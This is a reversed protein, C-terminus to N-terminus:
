GVSTSRVSEVTRRGYALAGSADEVPEQPPIVTLGARRAADTFTGVVAAVKGRLVDGASELYREMEKTAHRPAALILVNAWQADVERPSIYDKKMRELNESWVADARIVEPDALDPLRRLRVSGRMQIAGVGGALALQETVGYRSYFVVLVNASM